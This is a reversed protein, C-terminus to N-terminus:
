DFDPITKQSVQNPKKEGEFTSLKRDWAVLRGKIRVLLKNYENILDTTEESIESSEKDQRIAVTQLKDLKVKFPELDNLVVSDIVKKKEVISDVLAARKRIKDAQALIIEWRVRDPDHNCSFQDIKDIFPGLENLKDALTDVKERGSTIIRLKAIVDLLPDVLNNDSKVRMRSGLVLREILCMRKELRDINEDM